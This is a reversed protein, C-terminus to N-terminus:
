GAGEALGRDDGLIVPTSRISVLEPTQALRWRRVGDACAWLPDLRDVTLDPKILDFM